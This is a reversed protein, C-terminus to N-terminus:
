AQDEYAGYTDRLSRARIRRCRDRAADRDSALAYSAYGDHCRQASRWGVVFGDRLSRSIILPVIV